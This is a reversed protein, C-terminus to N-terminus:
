NDLEQITNLGKYGSSEWNYLEQVTVNSSCVFLRSGEQQQAKELKNKHIKLSGDQFLIIYYKM